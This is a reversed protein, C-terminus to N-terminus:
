IKSEWKLKRYIPNEKQREPIVSCAVEEIRVMAARQLAADQGALLDIFSRTQKRRATEQPNSLIKALWTQWKLSLFGESVFSIPPAKLPITRGEIDLVSLVFFKKRDGPVRDFTSYCAFPWGDRLRFAGFLANIIVLFSGVVIIARRRLPLGQRDPRVGAKSGGTLDCTRSDAIRRYISKGLMPVPWLYLFPLVPWLFPIRSALARYSYFGAWHKDNKVTYMDKMLAAPDMRDLGHKRLDQGDMANVYDIRCFIDFVKLTAMARRCIRCNGDYLVRMKDRYLWLGLREFVIKWDVFCVYAAQLQWFLIKMFLNTTNHFILGGIVALPRIKDFFILFLFSIEFIMAASGSYKLLTPYHDIRFLPTWDGLAFWKAYLIYQLNVGWRIGVNWFKWFGPFFYCIGILIWTFRIPLAYAISNEPANMIGRDARKWSAIIADCSFADGCRSAALIMPFWVVHHFHVVKGYCQTIGLIYCGLVASFFASLRSFLGLIGTACCISLLLLSTRIWTENIPLYSLLAALGTPAVRFEIPLKCYFIIDQEYISSLLIIFATIRFIALNLPHTDAGFFIKINQWTERRKYAMVAALM